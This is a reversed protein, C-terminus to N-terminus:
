YLQLIFKTCKFNQLTRFVSFNVKTLLSEGVKCFPKIQDVPFTKRWLKEQTLHTVHFTKRWLVEKQHLHRLMKNYVHSKQQEQQNKIKLEPITFLVRDWRHQLIYM